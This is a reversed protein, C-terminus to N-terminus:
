PKQAAVLEQLAQILAAVKQPAEASLSDLAQDAEDFAQQVPEMDIPTQKGLQLWPKLQDLQHRARGYDKASAATQAEALSGALSEELAALFQSQLAERYHQLVNQFRDRAAKVQDYDQAKRANTFAWHYLYVLLMLLFVVVLLSAGLYTKLRQSEREASSAERYPAPSEVAREGSSEQM